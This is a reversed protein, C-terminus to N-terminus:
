GEKGTPKYETIDHIPCGAVIQNETCFCNDYENLPLPNGDSDVPTVVDWGCMKCIGAIDPM